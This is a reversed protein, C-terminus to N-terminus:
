SICVKKCTAEVHPGDFIIRCWRRTLPEGNQVLVRRGRLHRHRRLAKALRMTLPIFRVRGGKTATV